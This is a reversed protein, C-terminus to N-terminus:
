RDWKSSNKHIIIAKLLTKRTIILLEHENNANNENGISSGPQSPEM